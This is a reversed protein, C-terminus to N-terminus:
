ANQQFYHQTHCIIQYSGMLEQFLTRLTGFYEFFVQLSHVFCLFLVSGLGKGTEEQMVLGEWYKEMM